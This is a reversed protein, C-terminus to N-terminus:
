MDPECLDPCGKLIQCTVPRAEVHVVITRPEHLATPVVPYRHVLAPVKLRTGQPQIHAAQIIRGAMGPMHWNEVMCEVHNAVIPEPNLSKFYPEISRLRIPTTHARYVSRVHHDALVLDM